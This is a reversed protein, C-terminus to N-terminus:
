GVEGMGWKRVVIHDAGVGLKQSRDRERLIKRCKRFLPLNFLPLFSLLCCHSLWATIFFAGVLASPGLLFVLLEDIVDSGV